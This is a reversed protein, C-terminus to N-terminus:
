AKATDASAQQKLRRKQQKLRCNMWGRLQAPQCSLQSFLLSGQNRRSVSFRLAGSPAARRGDVVGLDGVVVQPSSPVSSSFSVNQHSSSKLSSKLDFWWPELEIQSRVVM